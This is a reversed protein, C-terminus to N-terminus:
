AQFESYSSDNRTYYDKVTLPALGILKRKVNYRHHESKYHEKYDFDNDFHIQCNVCTFNGESMYHNISLSYIYAYFNDFDQNFDISKIDISIKSIIILRDIILDKGNSRTIRSSRPVVVACCIQRCLSHASSSLAQSLSQAARM